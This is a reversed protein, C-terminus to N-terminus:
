IYKLVLDLLKESANIDPSIIYPNKKVIEPYSNVLKNIEERLKDATLDKQHLIVALGLEEMYKANETQENLYSWPIPILISPKKLAILESVSNAGARSIVIDSKDLVVSWEEPEIQGICLYKENDIKKFSELDEDGTQHIIFYNELLDFLIPRVANNLWSSGRSGGTILITKVKPSSPKNILSIIKKNIPNGTLVIKEKPFYEQSTKRSIAIKQAFKSSFINARGASATQEHVIIPIKLVWSWFSVLSGSAGGLSLTLNPRIRILLILSQIFGFPIKLLSPITYRTFKNEIKGSTLHYFKVGLKPLIKFELSHNKNREVAHKRGIWYIEWDLNKSKIEEIISLGTTAGHSGALLLKKQKM